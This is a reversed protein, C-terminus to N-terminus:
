PGGPREYLYYWDPAGLDQIFLIFPHLDSADPGGAGIMSPDNVPEYIAHAAGFLTSLSAVQRLPFPTAAGFMELSWREPHNNQCWADGACLAGNSYTAGQYIFHGPLGRPGPLAYGFRNAMTPQLAAVVGLAVLVIVLASVLALRRRTFPSRAM